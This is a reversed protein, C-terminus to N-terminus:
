PLLLLCTPLLITTGEQYGSGNKCNRREQRQDHGVGALVSLHLFLELVFSISVDLAFPTDHGRPGQECCQNGDLDGRRSALRM